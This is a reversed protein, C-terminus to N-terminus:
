SVNIRVREWTVVLIQQVPESFLCISLEKGEEGVDNVPVNENQGRLEQNIKLSLISKWLLNLIRYNYSGCFYRCRRVHLREADWMEKTLSIESM